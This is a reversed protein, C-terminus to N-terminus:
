NYDRRISGNIGSMIGDTAEVNPSYMERKIQGFGFGGDPPPISIMRFGADERRLLAHGLEHAILRTSSFVKTKNTALNKFTRASNIDMLIVDSGPFTTNEDLDNLVFTTGGEVSMLKAILEKGNSGGKDRINVLSNKVKKLEADTVKSSEGIKRVHVQGDFLDKSESLTATKDMVSNVTSEDM